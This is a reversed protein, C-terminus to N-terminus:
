RVSHGQAQLHTATECLVQPAGTRTLDHSVMLIRLRRTSPAAAAIPPATNLAGVTQLLQQMIMPQRLGEHPLLKTAAFALLVLPFLVAAARLRDPKPYGRPRAMTRPVGPAELLLSHPVQAARPVVQLLKLPVAAWAVTLLSDLAALTAVSAAPNVSRRCVSM